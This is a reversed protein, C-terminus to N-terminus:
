VKINAKEDSCDSIFQKEPELKVITNQKKEDTEIFRIDSRTHVNKNILDYVIYGTNTIRVLKM